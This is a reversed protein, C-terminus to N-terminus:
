LATGLPLYGGRYGRITEAAWDKLSAFDRLYTLLVEATLRARAFVATQAEVELLQRAIENSTIVVGRRM